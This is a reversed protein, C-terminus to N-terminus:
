VVTCQDTNYFLISLLAGMPAADVVGRGLRKLRTDIKSVDFDPDDLIDVRVFFVRV